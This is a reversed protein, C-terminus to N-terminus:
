GLANLAEEPARGPGAHTGRNKAKKEARKEKITKVPKKALSQHPTKDPMAHERVCAPRCAGVEHIVGSEGLHLAQCDPVAVDAIGVFRTGVGDFESRVLGPPSAAPSTRPM